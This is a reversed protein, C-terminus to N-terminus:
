FKLTNCCEIIFSDFVLIHFYNEKVATHPTKPKSPVATEEIKPIPEEIEPDKPLESIIPKKQDPDNPEKGGPLMPEIMRENKFLLSVHDNEKTIVVEVRNEGLLYGLPSGTEEVIYTGLKNIIFHFFGDNETVYTELLVNNEDFLSIEAGSLTEKTENDIKYGSISYHKDKPVEEDLKKNFFVLFIDNDCNESFVIKEENNGLKYGEPAKTEMVIYTQNELDTFEFYGNKDTITKDILNLAEDFLSIEANELLNQSDFDKKM